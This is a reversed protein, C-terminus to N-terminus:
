IGIQGWKGHNIGLYDLIRTPKKVGQFKTTYKQGVYEDVVLLDYLKKALDPTLAEREFDTIEDAAEKIHQATGVKRLANSHEGSIKKGPKVHEPHGVGYIRVHKHYNPDLKKLNAKVLAAITASRRGGYDGIAIHVHGEKEM